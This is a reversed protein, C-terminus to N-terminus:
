ARTRANVYARVAKETDPNSLGADKALALAKEPDMGMDLVLCVYVAGAARNGDACHILVRTGRPLDKMISRFLDLDDKPPAKPLALRIHIVDLDALTLTEVDPVFDKEGDRRLNIVYTIKAGKLAGYTAANPVGKLVFIGPAIEMADPVGSSPALAILAPALLLINM